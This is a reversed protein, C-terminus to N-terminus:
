RAATPRLMVSAVAMGVCLVCGAVATTHLGAVFGSAGAPGAIAAAAPVGVANGAQRASNNVASALGARERPVAGIAGAVLAPTLLGLGFGWLVLVPLLAVYPSDARVTVYLGIGVAVALFGSVVFPVSGWRGILRSAVPPIAVLLVFAPLAALGAQFPSRHQVTQLFLTQLFLMGQATTNMAFAGVNSTLFDRRGFLDLPLMPQAQRREVAILAVLALAAIVVAMLSGDAAAYAVLGLLVAALVSGVPDLRCQPDGHDAPVARVVAVMAAAVLPLNLWFVSRWGTAAVLAGGLLPGAPLALGGIAAWVGIARARAEDRYTRAILALTGPLLLAAGIGQVVRAVILVGVTPAVACGLSGIGFVALGCLVVRRHGIRDGTTGSALLLAAFPVAYGAIVWALGASGAGLDARLQPLAVNLASVDLLVLFYGVCMTTLVARPSAITM